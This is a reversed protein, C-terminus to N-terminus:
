KGTFIELPLDYLNMFVQVFWNRLQLAVIVSCIQKIGYKSFLNLRLHYIM